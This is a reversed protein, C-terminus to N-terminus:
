KKNTRSKSVKNSFTEVSINGIINKDALKMLEKASLGPNDAVLKNIHIQSRGIAGQVRKPEFRYSKLAGSRMEINFADVLGQQFRLQKEMEVQLESTTVGNKSNEVLISRYIEQMQYLDTNLGQLDKLCSEHQIYKKFSIAM